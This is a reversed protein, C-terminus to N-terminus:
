DDEFLDRVNDSLLKTPIEEDYAVLRKVDLMFEPKAEKNRFIFSTEDTLWNQDPPVFFEFVNVYIFQIKKGLNDFFLLDSVVKEMRDKGISEGDYLEFGIHLSGPKGEPIQKIAEAVQRKISQTKKELAQPADCSWVIASAWRVDSVLKASRSDPKFEGCIHIGREPEDHGFLLDFLLPSGMRVSNHEFHRRARDITPKKVALTIEDDDLLVGEIAVFPLLPIVRKVFYDTPFAKVEKHFVVDLCLSAKKNHLYDALPEVLLLWHEREEKSYDSLTAKKKCEVFLTDEKEAKIDPSRTANSSEPLLTTKWGEKGYAIAVLMEFLVGDISNPATAACARIKDEVNVIERATAIDKGISKFVPIVRCGQKFDYDIPHYLFAECLYLYWAFQNPPTHPKSYLDINSTYTELSETFLVIDARFRGWAPSGIIDVFWRFAQELEPDPNVIILGNKDLLDAM